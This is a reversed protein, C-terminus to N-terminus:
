EGKKEQEAAPGYSEYYYLKGRWRYMVVRFRGDHGVVRRGLLRALRIEWWGARLTNIVEKYFPGYTYKPDVTM